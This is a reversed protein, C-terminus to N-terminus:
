FSYHQENQTHTPNTTKDNQSKVIKTNKQRSYLYPSFSFLHNPSTHIVM